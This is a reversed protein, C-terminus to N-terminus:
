GQVVGYLCQLRRIGDGDTIPDIFPEALRTCGLTRVTGWMVAASAPRHLRLDFVNWAALLRRYVEGPQTINGGADRLPDAWIDLSIRPFRMTNHENAGAWSGLYSVVAATSQSGEVTTWLDHQYLYPASTDPDAGLVALVDSFGKLYKVAGQVIDDTTVPGTM